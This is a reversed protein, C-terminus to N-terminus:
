MIDDFSEYEEVDVGADTIEACHLGGGTGVDREVASKIARVAVRRAEAMSLSETGEADLVGYAIQRGSGTAAYTDELAGEDRSLTFVHSGHEDVGGLIFTADPPSVSRLEGAAFASLATMDMPEDRRTGYLDVESRIARLFSQVTGLNDTSGIAATPHIQTIKQINESSISTGESTRTDAALLAGSRTTLGVLTGGSRSGRGDARYRPKVPRLSRSQYPNM